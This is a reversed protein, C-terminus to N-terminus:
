SLRGALTELAKVISGRPPCPEGDSGHVTTAPNGCDPCTHGICFRPAMLSCSECTALVVVDLRASPVSPVQFM